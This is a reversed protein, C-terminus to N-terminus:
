DSDGSNGGRRQIIKQALYGLFSTALGFLAFQWLYIGFISTDTMKSWINAMLSGLLEWAQSISM